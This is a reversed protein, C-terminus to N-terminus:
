DKWYREMQMFLFSATWTILVLGTLAQSGVMFRVYGEPIVDGFGLTTFCVFSFYSYDLMDANPLGALSGVGDFLFLFYYTFAFCWIEIVHAMIAGLLMFAIGQRHQLQWRASLQAMVNLCEFHLLVCVVIAVCTLLFTVLM